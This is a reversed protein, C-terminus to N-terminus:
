FDYSSGDMMVGHIDAEPLFLSFFHSLKERSLWFIRYKM